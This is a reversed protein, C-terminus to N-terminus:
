ISYYIDLLIHLLRKYISGNGSQLYKLFDSLQSSSEAISDGSARGSQFAYLDQLISVQKACPNVDFYVLYVIHLLISFFMNSLVQLKNQVIAQHLYM